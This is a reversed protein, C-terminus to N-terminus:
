GVGQSGFTISSLPSFSTIIEVSIPSNKLKTTSSLGSSRDTTSQYLFCTLSNSVSLNLFIITSLWSATQLKSPKVKYM